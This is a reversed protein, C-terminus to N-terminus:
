IHSGDVRQLCKIRAQRKVTGELGDCAGKSHSTAFFHWEADIGFDKKHQALNLFNKKIKSNLRREM